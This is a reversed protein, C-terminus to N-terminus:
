ETNLATIPNMKSARKAPIYGFLAGIGVAAGVSIVISWISVYLTEEMLIYAFVTLILGFFIGIIGGVLSTVVAEILFQRLILKPNAGIASRIGIEKTREVVTIFTINMIGIGGVLLSIATILTLIATISSFITSVTEAVEDNSYVLYEEEDGIRDKLYTRLIEKAQPLEDESQVRFIVDDIKGGADFLAGTGYPIYFTNNDSNEVNETESKQKLYGRVIFEQGNLKVTQGIPNEDGFLTERLYSGIVIAPKSSTIDVYNLFEGEELNIDNVDQYGLGVAVGSTKFHTNGRAVELSSLNKVPSNGSFVTSNSTVLRDVEDQTLANEQSYIAVEINYSGHSSFADVLYTQLGIMVNMIVIVSATGIVIGLITLFARTKNAKLSKLALKFTEGFM